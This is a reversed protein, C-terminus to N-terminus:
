AKFVPEPNEKMVVQICAELNRYKNHTLFFSDGVQMNTLEDYLERSPIPVGSEIRIRM